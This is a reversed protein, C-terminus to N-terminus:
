SLYQAGVDFGEEPTGFWEGNPFVCPEYRERSYTYFALTWRGTDFHRLRCLHIPTKRLRDILQGRSEGLCATTCKKGVDPEQFADIYCLAGRFRVEIRRYKGSYYKRAHELIRRKVAEQAAPPIKMGGAQPNFVWVKRM